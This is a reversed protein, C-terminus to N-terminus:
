SGGNLAILLIHKTESTIKAWEAIRRGVLWVIRGGSELVWQQDKEFRSVKEDILFDSILKSSQMGLPQFRDGQRWLRLVLPFELKESDFAASQKSQPIKFGDPEVESIELKVPWELHNQGNFIEIEVNEVSEKQVPRIMLEDRNVLLHHSRSFFEKGTVAIDLIDSSQAANFGFPQLWFFLILDAYQLPRIKQHHIITHEPHEQYVEPNQATILETAMQVFQGLMLQNESIRAEFDPQLGSFQPIIHHRIRNRLYRDGSNSEDERYPISNVKAYELIESKTFGLLPRIRHNTAVPIGAWGKAGSGRLLNIFLTEANDSAHHATVLKNLQQQNQLEHFWDYRLQRAEQQVSKGEKASDLLFRRQHQVVKHHKCWQEVLQADLDSAEGRLQFNCHAAEFYVGTRILLHGLVMSDVGGSMALLLRDNEQILHNKKIFQQFERWM